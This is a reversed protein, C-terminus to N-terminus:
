NGRFECRISRNEKTEQHTHLRPTPLLVTGPNLTSPQPNLTSPQSNLTSPQPNLTSLKLYFCLVQTGSRMGPTVNIQLQCREPQREKSGDVCVLRDFEFTATHGLVLDEISVGLNVKLEAHKRGSFVVEHYVVLPDYETGPAETEEEGKDGGGEKSPSREDDSDGEEIADLKEGVKVNAQEVYGRCIQFSATFNALDDPRDLLRPAFKKYARLVDAPTASDRPLNLSEFHRELEEEKVSSLAPVHVIMSSTRPPQPAAAGGVDVPPPPQQNAQQPGSTPISQQQQQQQELQQQILARQATNSPDFWLTGPPLGLKSAEDAAVEGVGASANPATPSQPKAKSAGNNSPVPLPLTIAFPKPAPALAPAPAPALAPAPDNPPPTPADKSKSAEAETNANSAPQPPAHNPLIVPAPPSPSAAAPPKPTAKPTSSASEDRPAVPPPALSKGSTTAHPNTPPSRPSQVPKNPAMSAGAPSKPVLLQPAPHEKSVNPKSSPSAVSASTLAPVAGGTTSTGESNSGDNSNINININENKSDNNATKVSTAEEMVKQKRLSEGILQGQKRLRDLEEETKLLREAIKDAESRM